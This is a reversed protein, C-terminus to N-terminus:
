ATQPARLLMEIGRRLGELAARQMSESATAAGPRDPDLNETILEPLFQPKRAALYADIAAAFLQERLGRLVYIGVQELEQLLVLAVEAADTADMARESALLARAKGLQALCFIEITDLRGDNPRGDTSTLCPLLM